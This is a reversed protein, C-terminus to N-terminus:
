RNGYRSINASEMNYVHFVPGRSDSEHPNIASEGGGAAGRIIIAKRPVYEMVFVM